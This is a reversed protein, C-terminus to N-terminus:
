NLPTNSQDGRLQGSGPEQAACSYYWPAGAEGGAGCACSMPGRLCVNFCKPVFVHSHQGLLSWYCPCIITVHYKSKYVRDLVYCLLYVIPCEIYQVSIIDWFGTAIPQWCSNSSKNWTNPGQRINTLKTYPKANKNLRKPSQKTRKLQLKTSSTANKYQIDHNQDIIQTHGRGNKKITSVIM